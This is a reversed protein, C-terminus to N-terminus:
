NSHEFLCTLPELYLTFVLIFHNIVDTKISVPVELSPMSFPFNKPKKLTKIIAGDRHVM